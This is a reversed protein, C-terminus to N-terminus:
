EQLFHQMFSLIQSQGECFTFIANPAYYLFTNKKNLM